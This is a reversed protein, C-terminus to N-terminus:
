RRRRSAAMAAGGRRLPPQHARSRASEVGAGPEQLADPEPAFCVGLLSGGLDLLHRLLRSLQLQLDLASHAGRLPFPLLFPRLHAGRRHALGLARTRGLIGKGSIAALVLVVCLPLALGLALALSSCHAGLFWRHRPLVALVGGGRVEGGRVSLPVGLALIRAPLLELRPELPRVLPPHQPVVKGVGLVARTGRLFVALHDLLCLAQVGLGTPRIADDVRLVKAVRHADVEYPLGKQLEGRPVGDALAGVAVNVRRPQRPLGDELATKREGALLAPYDHTCAHLHGGILRQNELPQLRVRVHHRQEGGVHVAATVLGHHEEVERPAAQVVHPHSPLDGRALHALPRLLEERGQHVEVAAPDGVPVDLCGVDEDIPPVVVVGHPLRSQDVEPDGAGGAPLLDELVGTLVPSRPVLRRLEKRALHPDAGVRPRLHVHEREPAGQVEEDGPQVQEHVGEVERGHLPPPSPLDVGAVLNVAERPEGLEGEGRVLDAGHDGPLEDGEAKSGAHLRDLPPQARVEIRGHPLPRLVCPLGGLERVQEVPHKELVGGLPDRCILRQLDHPADIGRVGSSPIPLPPYRNERRGGRHM